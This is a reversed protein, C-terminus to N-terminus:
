RDTWPIEDINEGREVLQREVKERVQDWPYELLRRLASAPCRPNGAASSVVADHEDRSLSDILDEPMHRNSAIKARM